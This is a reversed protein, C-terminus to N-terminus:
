REFPNGAKKRAGPESVTIPDLETPADKVEVRFPTTAADRYRGGLRDTQPANPPAGGPGPQPFWTVLVAYRGPAAGEHTERTVPDYTSLAFTGDSGAVGSPRAAPDDKGELPVLTVRAGEAPQNGTRILGRTPTHDSKGAGCGSLVLLVLAPGPIATWRTRM